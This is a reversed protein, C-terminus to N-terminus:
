RTAFSACRGPLVNKIFECDGTKWIETESEHNGGPLSSNRKLSTWVYLVRGGIRYAPIRGSNRYRMLSQLSIGLRKAAVKGSVINKRGPDKVPEHGELIERVMARAAERAESITEARFNEFLNNLTEM